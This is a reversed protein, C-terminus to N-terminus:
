FQIHTVAESLTISAAVIDEGKYVSYPKDKELEPASIILTKFPLDSDALILIQGDANRISIAVAASQTQKLIFVYQQSDSSIAQGGQSFDTNQFATTTGGYFYIGVASHLSTKSLSVAYITGGYIFLDGIGSNVAADICDGATCLISVNGGNIRVSCETAPSSGDEERNLNIGDDYAAISIDGDDIIVQAAEVGEFCNSIDVTGGNIRVLGDSHIANGNSQIGVSGGSIVIAGAASEAKIGGSASSISIAGEEIVIDGACTIGNLAHIETFREVSNFGGNTTINLETKSGKIRVMRYAAIGNQKGTIALKTNEISIDACAIGDGWDSTIALSGNGSIALAQEAYLVANVEETLPTTNYLTNETDKMLVLTKEGSGFVAFPSGSSSTIYVGNFKLAVDGDTNVRINGNTLTGSLVYTGATKITIADGIIEVDPSDQANSAGDSLTILIENSASPNGPDADPTNGCGILALLTLVVIPCVAYNKMKKEGKREEFLTFLM